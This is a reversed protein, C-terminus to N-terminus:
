TQIDRADEIHVRVIGLLQMPLPSGPTTDGLDERTGGRDEVEALVRYGLLDELLM